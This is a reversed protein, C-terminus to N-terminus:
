RNKINVVHAIAPISEKQFCTTPSMLAGTAMFLINSFANKEMKKLIGSCLVSASCGCGSGGCHVDQKKGDYIMLGCDSHNAKINIHEKQLIECLLQSGLEGLDGTFIQDYDNPTTNTDKFYQILTQAAAPAMAAGMNNVDTVGYDVISGVTARAICPGKKANSIICAGSGTVTWQATPTRQGGYELPFRYQREATCFHSSTVCASNTAAGSEVMISSLILGQAMTSCAGYQGLYPVNYGRMSFSSSICQNLLDGAFIFNIDEATKSSKELAIEFAEEQFLSEAKEWSDKGAYSDFIIKDFYSKLPGESEKKGAVSGYGIIAPMEEFGLTNHGIRRIM